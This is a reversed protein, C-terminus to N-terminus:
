GRRSARALAALSLLVASAAIGATVVGAPTWRATAQITVSRGLKFEWTAKMEEPHYPASPAADNPADSM